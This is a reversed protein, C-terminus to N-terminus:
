KPLATSRGWGAGSTLHDLLPQVRYPVPTSVSLTTNSHRVGQLDIMKGVAQQLQALTAAAVRVLLDERGAQTTVVM